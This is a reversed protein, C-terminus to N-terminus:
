PLDPPWPARHCTRTLRMLEFLGRACPHPFLTRLPVRICVCMHMYIHACVGARGVICLLGCASAHDQGDGCVPQRETEHRGVCLCKAKRPGSRRLCRLDLSNQFCRVAVLPFAAYLLPMTWKAGRRTCHAALHDAHKRRRGLSCRCMPACSPRSGHAGTHCGLHCLCPCVSSTWRCTPLPLHRLDLLM